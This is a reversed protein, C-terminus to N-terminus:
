QQSERVQVLAPSCKRLCCQSGVRRDEHANAPAFSTVRIAAVRADASVSPQLIPRHEGGAPLEQHAMDPASPMSDDLLGNRRRLVRCTPGRPLDGSGTTREATCTDRWLVCSECNGVMATWEQDVARAMKTSETIDPLCNFANSSCWARRKTAAAKSASSRARPLFKSKQKKQESTSECKEGPTEASRASNKGM